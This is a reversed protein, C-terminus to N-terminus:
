LYCSRNSPQNSRNQSIPLSLMSQCAWDIWNSGNNPPVKYGWKKQGRFIYSLLFNSNVAIQFM